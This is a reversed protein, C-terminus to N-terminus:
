LHIINKSYINSPFNVSTVGSLDMTGQLHPSDVPACEYPTIVVLLQILIIVIQHLANHLNFYQLNYVVLQYAYGELTNIRAAHNGAYANHSLITSINTEITEIDSKVAVM